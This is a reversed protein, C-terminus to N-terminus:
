SSRGESSHSVLPVERIVLARFLLRRVAFGRWTRGSTTKEDGGEAAESSSRRPAFVLM